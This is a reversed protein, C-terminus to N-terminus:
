LSLFTSSYPFKPNISSVNCLNYMCLYSILYTIVDQKKGLLSTFIPQYAHVGCRCRGTVSTNSFPPLDFNKAPLRKKQKQL